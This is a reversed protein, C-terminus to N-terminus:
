PILLFSPSCVFRALILMEMSSSLGCLLVGMAAFLLATQNARKRGLVNCLRGYLPTFTCTALLYSGLVTLYTM